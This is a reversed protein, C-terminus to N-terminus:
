DGLAYKVSRTFLLENKGANKFVKVELVGSRAPVPAFMRFFQISPGQEAITDATVSTRSEAVKKGDAHVEAVIWYASGTFDRRSTAYLVPLEVVVATGTTLVISPAWNDALLSAGAMNVPMGTAPESAKSEVPPPAAKPAPPPTVAIVFDEEDDFAESGPVGANAGRTEEAPTVAFFDDEEDAFASGVFLSSLLFLVSM